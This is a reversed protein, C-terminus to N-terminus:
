VRRGGSPLAVHISIKLILGSQFMPYRPSLTINLCLDFYGRTAQVDELRKIV